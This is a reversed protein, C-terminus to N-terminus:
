FPIDVDGRPFDEPLDGPFDDRFSGQDEKPAGSRAAPDGPLGEAESKQRRIYVPRAIYNAVLKHYRKTAGDKEVVQVQEKGEVHIADGRGFEDCVKDAIPNGERNWVVVDHWTPPSDVWNGGRDKYSNSTAVSFRCGSSGGPTQFGEPAKGLHGIITKLNRNPM